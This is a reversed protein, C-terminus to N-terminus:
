AYEYGGHGRQKFEVPKEQEKRDETAKFANFAKDANRMLSLLMDIVQCAGQRQHLLALDIEKRNASDLRSLESELFQIFNYDQNGSIYFLTKALHIKDRLQWNYPYDIM